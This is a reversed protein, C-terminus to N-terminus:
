LNIGNNKLNEEFSLSADYCKPIIVEKYKGLKKLTEKLFPNKSQLIACMTKGNYAEFFGERQTYPIHQKKETGSITKKSFDYFQIIPDGNQYLEKLKECVVKEDYKCSKILQKVDVVLVCLGNERYMAWKKKTIPNTNVVEIFIPKKHHYFLVDCRYRGIVFSELSVTSSTMRLNKKKGNVTIKIKGGSILYDRTFATVKLHYFINTNVVKGNSDRVFNESNSM